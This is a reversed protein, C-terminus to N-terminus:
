QDGRLKKEIDALYKPWDAEKRKLRYVGNLFNSMNGWYSDMQTLSPKLKSWASQDIVVKVTEIGSDVASAFLDQQTPCFERETLRITQNDGNALFAAFCFIM